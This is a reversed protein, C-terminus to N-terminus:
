NVGLETACALVANYLLAIDINGGIFVCEFVRTSLDAASGNNNRAGLYVDLNVDAASGTIGITTTTGNQTLKIAGGAEIKAAFFGKSSANANSVVSAHNVVASQNGSYLTKMYTSTVADNCGIDVSNEDINSFSYVGITADKQAYAVANTYPKWKLNFFAGSFSLGSPSYNVTGTSSPAFSQGSTSIIPKLFQDMATLKGFFHFLDLKDLNGDDTIQKFMKQFAVMVSGNPKTTLSNWWTVLVPEVTGTGICHVSATIAGTSNNSIVTSFTSYNNPIFKVYITTAAVSGLTPALSIPSMNTNSGDTNVIYGPGTTILIPAILNIGSVQYTQATSITGLKTSMFGFSSASISITPPNPAPAPAVFSRKLKITLTAKAM